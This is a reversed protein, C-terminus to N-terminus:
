ETYIDALKFVPGDACSRAYMWEGPHAHDNVKVVCGFCAGVGCCMIHDVSLEGDLGKERLLKALAMLMPHPGCGYFFLKKGAYQALLEPFLDTVRGKTGISGDDTAVKVDFGADAYEKTLLIDKESRAGLLLVGGNRSQRTLMFTAAAGYGGCVAVPVVDEAPASFGKGCPGIIDCVTGEKLTSLTETGKGVVKYVITLKGNEANHISFPRRLINDNREDIRIHVFQGPCSKHAIEPADFVARFYDGHMRSNSIIKCESM